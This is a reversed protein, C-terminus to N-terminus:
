SIAPGRTASSQKWRNWSTAAMLGAVAEGDSYQECADVYDRATTSWEGFIAFVADADLDFATRGAVLLDDGGSGSLSDIRRRRDAPQSVAGPSGIM